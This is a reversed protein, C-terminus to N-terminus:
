VKLEGSILKPLLIDRILKLPQLQQENASKKRLYQGALDEFKSLISDSSYVCLAKAVDDPKIAPYAAGDAIRAFESICDDSTLAFYTFARYSEKKARVVVFGTSGTLGEENIYAFSRNAPRVVGIITDHIKLVRRARSPAESFNYETTDLVAGSKANALDVYKVFEPATKNTWSEPNIKNLTDITKIQWGKPIWGLESEEFENPFLQQINHPLAKLKPNSARQAIVTKRLEALEQLEDPIAKDAALANDIVPDFDVFWSKFLAQAMKELTQNTSKNNEIKEDIASLISTIKRKVDKPPLRLELSKIAKLSITKQVAGVVMEEIQNKIQPSILAYYLFRDKENPIILATNQGLCFKENSNVYAFNGYSGVRTIVIDELEPDRGKSFDNYVDGSVKKTNELSLKGSSVDVVRVMPLGHDSYQPTKHRSDVVTAIDELKVTEWESGM